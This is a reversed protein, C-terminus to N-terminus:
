QSHPSWIFERDDLRDPNKLSYGFINAVPEYRRVLWRLRWRHWPHKLDQAWWSFYRANADQKIEQEIPVSAVGIFKWIQEMYCQPHKVFEEYRIVLLRRIYPIDDNFLSYTYLTHRILHPISTKAWKKTAYSVPIPHRLIIIFCSHPFLKQLFRMRIINPPSKEVLFKKEVNWYRSWQKFLKDANEETALPHNEDMRAQPHFAFKGAGGFVLAPPYVTQLHQGEDEWVGTNAFGSIDPHSRVIRHLLSTGSRHLGGIFIFHKERWEYNKTEM